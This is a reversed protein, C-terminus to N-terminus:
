SVCITLPVAEKSTVVNGPMHNGFTTGEALPAMALDGLKTVKRLRVLRPYAYQHRLPLEAHRHARKPSRRATRVTRCFDPYDVRPVRVRSKSPRGTRM